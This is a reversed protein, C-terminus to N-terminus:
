VDWAASNFRQVKRMKPVKANRKKKKREKADRGDERSLTLIGLLEGEWGEFEV